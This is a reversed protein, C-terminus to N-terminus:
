SLLIVGLVILASARIRLKGHSERLVFVGLLTGFVIGIERMPALQAVPMMQLATLFLIYSGPAMVGGLLITKWNVIWENRIAGSRLAMWSLALLNGVNTAENLAVPPIYHLAVKDFVTYGSILLGVCLALVVTRNPVQSLGRFGINGIFCIGIIVCFVGSWQILSLHEGLVLVGIFPVLLPSTGRMIPYAQSLDAISYAKALLVIYTGHLLISIFLFILGMSQIPHGLRALDRVTFPLFIIIAAWQCFWLFVIKNISQKTFLNWVSHVLGSMLVLCIAVVYM